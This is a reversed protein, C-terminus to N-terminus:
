SKILFEVTTDLAEAMKILTGLRVDKGNKINKLTNRINASTVGLKQSLWVQNKELEALRIKVQRYINM